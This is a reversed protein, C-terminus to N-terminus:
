LSLKELVVEPMLSFCVVKAMAESFLPQSSMLILLRANAFVRTEEFTLEEQMITSVVSTDNPMKHQTLMEQLLSSQFIPLNFSELSLGAYNPRKQLDQIVCATIQEESAFPYKQKFVDDYSSSTYWFPTTSKFTWLVTAIYYLPKQHSCASLFHYSWANCHEM